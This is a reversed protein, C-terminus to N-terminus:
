VTARYTMFLISGIRLDVVLGGQFQATQRPCKANRENCRDRLRRLTLLRSKAPMSPVSSRKGTSSAWAWPFLRRRSVLVEREVM